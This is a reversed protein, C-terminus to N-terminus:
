QPDLGPVSGAKDFRRAIESFDEGIVAHPQDIAAARDAQHSREGIGNEFVAAVDGANNRFEQGLTFSRSPERLLKDDRLIHMLALARHELMGVTEDGKRATDARELFQDLLDGPAARVCLFGIRTALM